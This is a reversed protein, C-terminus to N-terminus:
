LQLEAIDQLSLGTTEAIIDIPINKLLLSKAIQTREEAKGEIRGKELGKKLGEALGKSLGEARGKMERGSLLTNERRIQDWYMEYADLEVPNYAAEEALQIARKIEPNELLEPDVTQTTRDIERM